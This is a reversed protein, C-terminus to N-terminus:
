RKKEAKTIIVEKESVNVKYGQCWYLHATLIIFFVNVYDELSKCFASSSESSFPLLCVMNKPAKNEDRIDNLKNESVRM